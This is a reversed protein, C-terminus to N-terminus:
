SRRIKTWYFHELRYRLPSSRIYFPIYKINYPTIDIFRVWSPLVIVDCVNCRGFGYKFTIRGHKCKKVKAYKGGGGAWGPCRHSKDYCPRSLRM